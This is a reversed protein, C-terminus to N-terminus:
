INTGFKNEGSNGEPVNSGASGKLAELQNSIEKLEDRLKKILRGRKNYYPLSLLLGIVIGTLMSIVLVLAVSGQFSWFFFNINLPATNQVGFVVALVLVVLVSIINGTM